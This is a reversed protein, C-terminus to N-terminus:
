DFFELKSLVKGKCENFEILEFFSKLNLYVDM